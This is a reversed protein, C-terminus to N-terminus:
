PAESEVITLLTCPCTDPEFREESALRPSGIWHAGAADDHGACRLAAKLAVLLAYREDLLREVDERTVNIGEGDASREHIRERLEAIQESTM